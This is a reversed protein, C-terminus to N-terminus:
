VRRCGVKFLQKDPHYRTQNANINRSERANDNGLVACGPQKTEDCVDPLGAKM